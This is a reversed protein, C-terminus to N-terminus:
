TKEVIDTMFSGGLLIAPEDIKGHEYSLIGVGGAELLLHARDTLERGIWRIAFARLIHGHAVVVVDGKEHNNEIARSQFKERIEKIVRDLRETVQMPSEGGPCGDQWIDWAREGNKKRLEAITESTVGEYDGYDWERVDESVQVKANQLLDSKELKNSDDVKTWPLRDHCGLELLELTKQARQRPSVYRHLAADVDERVICNIM